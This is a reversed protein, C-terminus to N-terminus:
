KNLAINNQNADTVVTLCLDNWIMRITNDAM